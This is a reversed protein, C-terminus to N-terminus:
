QEVIVEALEIMQAVDAEHLNAISNYLSVEDLIADVSRWGSEILEFAANFAAIDRRDEAKQQRKISRWVKSANDDTVAQWYAPTIRGDSERATTTTTM